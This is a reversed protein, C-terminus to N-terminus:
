YSAKSPIITKYVILINNIVPTQSFKIDHSFLTMERKILRKIHAQFAVGKNKILVSGLTFSQSDIGIGGVGKAL